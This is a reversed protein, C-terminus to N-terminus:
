LNQDCVPGDRRDAGEHQPTAQEQYAERRLRLPLLGIFGRHIGNRDLGISIAQQVDGTILELNVQGRIGLTLMDGFGVIQKPIVEEACSIELWGRLMHPLGQLALERCGQMVIGIVQQASASEFGSLISLRQLCKLRKDLRTMAFPPVIRREIPACLGQKVQTIKSTGGAM